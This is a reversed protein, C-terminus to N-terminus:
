LHLRRLFEERYMKYTYRLMVNLVFLPISAWISWSFKQRIIFELTLLFIGVFFLFFNIIKLKDEKHKDWVFSFAVGIIYFAAVIPIGRKLSWTMKRNGYDLILLFSSLGTLLLFLNTRMRYSNLMVFLILDFVLISPIAYYGWSLNGYIIMNQFFIELISIISITFFSLFIGKRMKKIKLEYLNINIKPYERNRDDRNFIEPVETECLPCKEADDELEVGCKICYM